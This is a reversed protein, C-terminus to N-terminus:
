STNNDIGADQATDEKQQNWYIYNQDSGIVATSSMALANYITRTVHTVILHSSNFHSLVSLYVHNSLFM